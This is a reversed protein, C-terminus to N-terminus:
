GEALTLNRVLPTTDGGRGSSSGQVERDLSTNIPSKSEVDKDGRHEETTPAGAGPKGKADDGDSENGSYSVLTEEQQSPSWSGPSHDRDVFRPNSQDDPPLSPPRSRRQCAIAVAATNSPSSFAKSAVNTAEQLSSAKGRPKAPKSTSKAGKKRSSSERRPKCGECVHQQTWLSAQYANAIRGNSKPGDSNRGGNVPVEM